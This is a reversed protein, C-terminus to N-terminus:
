KDLLDRVKKAFAQTTYPKPLFAVTSGTTGRLSAVDETYGSCFLVSTEPSMSRLQEALERGGMEPMIVDTVLLHIARSPNAHMLNLAQRGNTATLITYGLKGLLSAGMDRVM